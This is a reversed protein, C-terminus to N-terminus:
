SEKQKANQFHLTSFLGFLIGIDYSYCDLKNTTIDHSFCKMFYKWGEKGVKTRAISCEKFKTPLYYQKLFNSFFISIIVDANEVTANQWTNTVHKDNNLWFNTIFVWGAFNWFFIHPPTCKAYPMIIILSETRRLLFWYCFNAYM